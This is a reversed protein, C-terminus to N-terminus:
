RFLKYAMLPMFPMVARQRGYKSMETVAAINSQPQVNKGNVTSSWAYCKLTKGKLYGNGIQVTYGKWSSANIVIYGPSSASYGYSGYIICDSDNSKLIQIRPSKTAYSKTYDFVYYICFLVVFNKRRM